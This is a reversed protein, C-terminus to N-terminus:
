TEIAKNFESILIKKDIGTDILDWPLLEERPRERLYFLPNVGAEKFASLWIEPRFHAGWADFRAGKKFALYIAQSLRRDGRSFVGELFSMEPNHFNIKLRKNRIKNKLYYQKEKIFSLDQMAFWQFPTHPKPILTNVSINVQAPPKGVERRLESVRVSFDIIADLDEKEEGPLGIMFYLKVHQYGALFAQRLACFCDSESFDKALVKRLRESGAEPAFTLGTKKVTAIIESIGGVLAKPKISPLSVSVTKDKFLDMLDKILEEIHTYDSVSLGTLSIEDYGTCKYLSAALALITEKKRQRFPYYGTRAQCFRCRNPCGRMIELTLRDHIIEIYPVLWESPFFSSNLDNIFRKNVKLPLGEIKPYFENPAGLQDYKVEYLSPAYIGDIRCLRSLLEAKSIRGAKYEQKHGSYERIFEPLLDESEGIAFIDIFEHMPEPNLVSPGGAIVLPYGQDRMVAKVPINGLELINLVNTYDLESALSFGAIDFEKLGKKSELSVIELANNRLVNEMDLDPSFFRECCVEEISNLLGYIIRIGLNSMGVEYLDPFCLAFKVDAKDFPKRSINWEKGIYRAPKRVQLLFDDM